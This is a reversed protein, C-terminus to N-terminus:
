NILVFVEYRVCVVNERTSLELTIVIYLWDILPMHM